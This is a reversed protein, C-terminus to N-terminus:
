RVPGWWGQWPWRRGPLRALRRRLDRVSVRYKFAKRGDILLVPVENGYRERLDADRDVDRTEVNAAVEAAVERVVAAMEECLHCGPRSLITLTVTEGDRRM